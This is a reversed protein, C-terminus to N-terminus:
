VKQSIRVQPSGTYNFIVETIAWVYKQMQVLTPGNIQINTHITDSKTTLGKM